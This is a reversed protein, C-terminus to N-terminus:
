RALKSNKIAVDQMESNELPPMQLYFGQEEISKIVDGVNARALKKNEDLLLVMAAQPKGFITLLAEPVRTLDQKKDVYLYMDSKKSSRYVQCIIKSM